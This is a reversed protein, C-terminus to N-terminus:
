RLTRGIHWGAMLKFAGMCNRTPLHAEHTSLLLAVLGSKSTDGTSALMTRATLALCVFSQLTTSFHIRHTLNTVSSVQCVATLYVFTGLLLLVTGPVCTYEYMTYM